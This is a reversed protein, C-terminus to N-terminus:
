DVIGVAGQAWVALFVLTAVLTLSIRLRLRAWGRTWIVALALALAGFMVAAFIFDLTTWHM